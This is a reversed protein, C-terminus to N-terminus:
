AIGEIVFLFFNLKEASFALYYLKFREASALLLNRDVIELVLQSDKPLSIGLYKEQLYLVVRYIQQSGALALSANDRLLQVLHVLHFVIHLDL